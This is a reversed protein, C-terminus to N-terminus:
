FAIFGNAGIAAAWHLDGQAVGDTINAYFQALALGRAREGHHRESQHPRVDAARRMRMRQSSSLGASPGARRPPSSRGAAATPPAGVSWRGDSTRSTSRGARETSTSGTPWCAVSGGGGAQDATGRGHALGRDQDRGRDGTGDDAASPAPRRLGRDEVSRDVHEYLRGGGAGSWPHRRDNADHRHHDNEPRREEPSRQTCPASGTQWKARYGAPWGDLEVLAKPRLSYIRRQAEQQVSM